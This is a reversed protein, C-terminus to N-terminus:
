VDSEERGGETQGDSDILDDEGRRVAYTNGGRGASRGDISGGDKGLMKGDAKREAISPRFQLPLPSIIRYRRPM